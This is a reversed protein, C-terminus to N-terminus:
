CQGLPKPNKLIDILYDLNEKKPSSVPYVKYTSWVLASTLAARAYTIRKQIEVADDPNLACYVAANHELEGGQDMVSLALEEMRKSSKPDKTDKIFVNTVDYIEAATKYCENIKNQIEDKTPKM